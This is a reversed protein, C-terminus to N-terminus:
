KGDESLMEKQKKQNKSWFFLLYIVLMVAGICAFADAVNFIAFDMFTFEIMDRVYGFAFRDIINGIGGGIIFAFSLGLLISKYKNTRIMFIALVVSVAVSVIGLMVTNDSFMSFAAGTNQAYTFAAFGPFVDDSGGMQPLIDQAAIKTLQDFLIIGAIVAIEFILLKKNNRM